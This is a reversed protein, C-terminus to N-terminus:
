EHIAYVLIYDEFMYGELRFEEHYDQKIIKASGILDGDVEEIYTIHLDSKFNVNGKGYAKFLSEKAGWIFHQYLLEKDNPILKLEEPSIFKKAIRGIKSVFYQIDVGVLYPSAIIATLDRSHSLSIHFPSDDLFPKGFQDKLVAGRTKRGSMLHLLYRSSLWEMLKRDKLNILSTKESEYIYLNSLFFDIDEKITWVGLEGYPEINKKLTIPLSTINNNTSM